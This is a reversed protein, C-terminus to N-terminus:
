RRRIALLKSAVKGFRTAAEGITGAEDQAQVTGLPRQKAAGVFVDWTFVEVPSLSPNLCYRRNAHCPMVWSRGGRTPQRGPAKSLSPKGQKLPPSLGARAANVKAHGRWARGILNSVTDNKGSRV